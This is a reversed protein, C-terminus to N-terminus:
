IPVVFTWGDDSSHPHIMWPSSVLHLLSQASLARARVHFGHHRRDGAHVEIDVLVEHLRVHCCCVHGRPQTDNKLDLMPWVVRGSIGWRTVQRRPEARPLPGSPPPTGACSKLRESQPPHSSTRALCIRLETCVFFHPAHTQQADDWAIISFQRTSKHTSTAESM